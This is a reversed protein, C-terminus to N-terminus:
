WRSRLQVGIQRARIAAARQEPTVRGVSAPLVVLPDAATRVAAAAKLRLGALGSRSAASPATAAGVEPLATQVWQAATRNVLSCYVAAPTDSAGPFSQPSQAAIAGSLAGAVGVLHEVDANGVKRSGVLDNAQDDDVQRIMNDIHTRLLGAVAKTPLRDGTALSLMSAQDHVYADLSDRATTVAAADGNALAVSYDVLFQTHQAWVQDFARAATPGYVLGVDAAMADNNTKMADLWGSSQARGVSAARMTQALTVSHWAFQQELELRLDSAPLVVGRDAAVEAVDRSPDHDLRFVEPVRVSGSSQCASLLLIAVVALPGFSRVSRTV